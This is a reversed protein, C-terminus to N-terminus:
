RVAPDRAPLLELVREYFDATAALDATYCFTVFSRFPAAVMARHYKVVRAFANHINGGARTNGKSM